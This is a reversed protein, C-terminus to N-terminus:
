TFFRGLDDHFQHAHANHRRDILLQIDIRRRNDGLFEARSDLDFNGFLFLKQHILGIIRSIQFCTRRYYGNHSVDVM